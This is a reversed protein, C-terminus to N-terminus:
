KPLNPEIAVVVKTVAECAEDLSADASAFVDIRSTASIEIVVACSSSTFAKKALKAKRSGVQTDSLETAAQPVFDALGKDPHIDLGLTVSDSYTATCSDSDDEEVQTLGLRSANSDFAECPDVSGLANGTSSTSTPRTTSATVATTTTTAPSPTGDEGSCSVLALGALMLLATTRAATTRVLHVKM